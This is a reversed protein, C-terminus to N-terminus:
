EDDYYGEDEYDSERRKKLYMYVGLAGGGILIGGLFLLVYLGPSGGEPAAPSDTPAPAATPEPTPEIPQVPAPAEAERSILRLTYTKSGGLDMTLVGSADATVPVPFVGTDLKLEFEAGAWQAGLELVLKDPQATIKLESGDTDAYATPVSVCMALVLAAAAFLRVAGNKIM